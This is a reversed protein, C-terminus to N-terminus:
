SLLVSILFTSTENNYFIHLISYTRCSLQVNFFMILAYGPVSPFIVLAYIIPFFRFTEETGLDRKTRM